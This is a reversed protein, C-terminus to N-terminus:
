WTIVHNYSFWQFSVVSAVKIILKYTSIVHSNITNVWHFYIYKYISLFPLFYM